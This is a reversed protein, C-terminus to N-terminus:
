KMPANSAPRGDTAAWGLDHSRAANAILATDVAAM